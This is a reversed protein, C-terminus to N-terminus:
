NTLTAQYFSQSGRPGDVRVSVRYVPKTFAPVGGGSDTGTSVSTPTLCNLRDVSGTTRCMRDVVYYMTVQPPTGTGVAPASTLDVVNTAVGVGGVTTPATGLLVTPIGEPTTALLTASYNISTANVTLDVGSNLGTMARRLAVEAQNSMDRKMGINGAGMLTANMSRLAAVAGIMMIALTILAIVM